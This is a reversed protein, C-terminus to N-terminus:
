ILKTSGANQQLTATGNTLLLMYVCKTQNHQLTIYCILLLQKVTLTLCWLAFVDIQEGNTMKTMITTCVRQSQTQM